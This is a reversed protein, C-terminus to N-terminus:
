PTAYMGCNTGLPTGALSMRQSPSSPTFIIPSNSTIDLTNNISAQPPLAPLPDVIVETLTVPVGDVTCDPPVLWHEAVTSPVPLKLEKTVHVALAPVIVLVPRSVAGVTEDVVVRVTVAVDTWSVLLDPFKVTVTIGITSDFLTCGMRTSEPGAGCLKKVTFWAKALTVTHMGLELVQWVM